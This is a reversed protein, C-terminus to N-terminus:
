FYHIKSAIKVYSNTRSSRRNFYALIRLSYVLVPANAEVAERFAQSDVITGVLPPIKMRSINLGDSRRGKMTKYKTTKGM